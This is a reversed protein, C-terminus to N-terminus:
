IRKFNTFYKSSFECCQLLYNCCVIQNKHLLMLLLTNLVPLSLSLLNLQSLLVMPTLLLDLMLIGMIGMPMALVLMPIDMLMVLLELPTFPVVTSPRPLLSLQSMWPSLLVMPMVLLVM